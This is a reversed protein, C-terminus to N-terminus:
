IVSRAKAAIEEAPTGTSTDVQIYDILFGFWPSQRIGPNNHYVPTIVYDHDNAYGATALALQHLSLQCRASFAADRVMGIAPLLMAILLSIITIVM